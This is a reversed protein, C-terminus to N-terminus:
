NANSKEKLYKFFPTPSTLFNEMDKVIEEMSRPETDDIEMPDSPEQLVWELSTIIGSRHSILAPDTTEMYKTQTLLEDKIEEETRM